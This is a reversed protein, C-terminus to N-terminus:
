TEPKIHNNVGYTILNNENFHKSFPPYMIDNSNFSHTWIGLLNGFEHIAIIYSLVSRIIPQDSCIGLNQQPFVISEFYLKFVIPISIKIKPPPILPSM